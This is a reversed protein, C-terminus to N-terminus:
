KKRLKIGFYSGVAALGTGLLILTSPEPVSTPHHPPNPPHYPPHPPPKHPVPPHWGGWAYAQGVGWKGTFGSQISPTMMFVFLGLCIALLTLKTKMYEAGKKYDVEKM